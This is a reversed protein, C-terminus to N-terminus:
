RLSTLSRSLADADAIVIAIAVAVATALTHEDHYRIVARDGQRAGEYGM